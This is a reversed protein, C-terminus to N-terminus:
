VMISADFAAFLYITPSASEWRPAFSDKVSIRLNLEYRNRGNMQDLGEYVFSGDQSPQSFRAMRIQRYASPKPTFREILGSNCFLSKYLRIDPADRKETNSIFCFGMQPRNRRSMAQRDFPAAFVSLDKESNTWITGSAEERMKEVWLWTNDAHKERFQRQASFIPNRVDEPAAQALVRSAIREATTPDLTIEAAKVDNEFEAWTADSNDQKLGAAALERSPDWDRTYEVSANVM